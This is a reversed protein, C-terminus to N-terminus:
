IWSCLRAKVDLKNDIVKLKLVWRLSICEQGRDDEEGYVKKSEM